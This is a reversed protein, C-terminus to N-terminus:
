ECVKRNVQHLDNVIMYDLYYTTAQLAPRAPQPAAHLEAHTHEHAVETTDLGCDPQPPATLDSLCAPPGGGAAADRAQRAANRDTITVTHAPGAPRDQPAVSYVQTGKSFWGSTAQVFSREAPAARRPPPRRALSRAGSLGGHCTSVAAMSQPDGRVAGTYFCNEHGHVAAAVRGDAIRARSHALTAMCAHRPAGQLPRATRLRVAGPSSGVRPPAHWASQEASVAHFSQSLLADNRSLDLTFQTSRTVCRARVSGGSARRRLPTPYCPAAPGVTSGAVALEVVLERKHLRHGHADIGEMLTPHEGPASRLFYPAVVHSRAHLRAANSAAQRGSRRSCPWATRNPRRLAVVRLFVTFM